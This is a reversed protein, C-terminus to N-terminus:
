HLPYGLTVMVLLLAYFMSFAIMAAAHFARNRHLSIVLSFPFLVATYRALGELAGSSLPVWLNALMFVAYAPGLRFWVFPVAAVMLLGATGNLLACPPDPSPLMRVPSWSFLQGLLTTYASWPSGGPNYDWSRQIIAAWEFANGFSWYDFLCFAGLGAAALALGGCLKAPGREQQRAEPWGALALAPLAFLGNVRTLCALAGFLGGLLFRGKRFGYVSALTVLLFLSESYVEGFYFAGPFISLYLVARQASGEDLDLRALAYFLLLAAAFCGWSVLAGALYWSLRRPRVSVLLADRVGRMLVPYAPFFAINSQGHPRAVYGFRAISVYWGADYRTFTNWFPEDFLEFDAQNERAPEYPRGSVVAVYAIAASALRIGLALGLIWVVRSRTV